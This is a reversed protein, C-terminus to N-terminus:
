WRKYFAGPTVASERGAGREWTRTPSGNVKKPAVYDQAKVVNNTGYKREGKSRLPRYFTQRGKTYHPISPRSAFILFVLSFVDISFM